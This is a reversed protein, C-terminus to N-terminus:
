FADVAIRDRREETWWDYVERDTKPAGREEAVQKYIRKLVERADRIVPPEGCIFTKARSDWVKAVAQREQWLSDQVYGPSTATDKPQSYALYLETAGEQGWNGFDQSYLAEDENRCGIFLIAPALQIHTDIQSRLLIARHQVFARFPAIGGGACIMVIPTSIMELTQPLRFYQQAPRIPAKFSGGVERTALFSSALGLIQNESDPGEASFLSIAPDTTSYGRAKFVQLLNNAMISSNCPYVELYAGPDYTADKPLEVEMHFKPRSISKTLQVISKVKVDFSSPHRSTLDKQNMSVDVCNSVEAVEEFGKVKALEPWFYDTQWTAFSQFTTGDGVDVSGPPTLPTAGRQEMLSFILKPIRQFTSHWDRNGCGFLAFVGNGRIYTRSFTSCKNPPQGEYSATIIIIVDGNDVLDLAEDLSSVVCRLGRQQASAEMSEALAKCTGMNSGYLISMSRSIELSEKNHQDEHIPNPVPGQFESASPRLLDAQLTLVNINPRLGLKYDPDVLQFDFNQFLLTTAIMAEQMAFDSGICSRLGNGFPKFCNRPLKRFNEDLIREPQFEEADKGWVELDRHLKPNVILITQGSRVEYQGGLLIPVSPDKIIPTVTWVGSPPQLRLAERLCAKTYPLQQLHDPTLADNHLVSEIEQRLKRYVEPHTLVLAFLFSLLGSTTEHGAILFTIMNDIITGDALGKGTARDIGNLMADVLDDKKIPNARRKEVVHRAIEHVVRNNEDFRRTAQWLCKSYWYPRSSRLQEEALMPIFADVFPPLAELTITDVTLRTFDAPVDIHHEPGFRAWKLILQTTIDLMEPFMKRIAMPGLAPLLVKHAIGWSEQDPYATFLGDPVM